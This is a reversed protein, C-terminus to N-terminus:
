RRSTCSGSAIEDNSLGRAVLTLVERERETLSDLSADVTDPAGDVPQALFRDILARTARPSLLAEGAAVVRVADLLEKPEVGKGLFGGAGARLAAVVYEDAEFTTLILVHVGALGPNASIQETAQLRDLQPMRIDM